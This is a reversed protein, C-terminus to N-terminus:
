HMRNLSLMMYNFHYDYIPVANHLILHFFIMVTISAIKATALPFGSFICVQLPNSGKLKTIRACCEVLQASLHVLLLHNVQNRIFVTSKTSCQVPTLFTLPKVGM